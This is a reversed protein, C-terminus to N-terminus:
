FTLNLGGVITRQLPFSYIAGPNEPDLVQYRTITFLNQANLNISAGKVGMKKADRVPLNWALSCTKLKIYSADSYSGNSREFASATQNVILSSGGSERQFQAVDGPKQWLGNLVEVPQNTYAFGPPYSERYVAGIYNLGPKKSFNFFLMLSFGKYSFTNSFGGQFEPILNVIPVQDGGKTYLNNAPNYTPQGKATAFQFLGTQPNVGLYKYGYLVSTSKGIVYYDAFSSTALGPFAILKNNNRSINFSSRWSFDRGKVNVSSISIELGRDQVVAPSNEVVSTFGTQGPLNSEILQNSTRAQYTGFSLLFRDKFFGLEIAADIKKTLDWSYDTNFLNVPAYPVIGQFSFYDGRAAWNPQYQYPAIGDGGSTGYSLRM